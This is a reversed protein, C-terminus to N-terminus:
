KVQAISDTNNELDPYLATSISDYNVYKQEYADLAQHIKPDVGDMPGIYGQM